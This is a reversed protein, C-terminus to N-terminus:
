AHETTNPNHLHRGPGVHRGRACRERVPAGVHDLHFTHLEAIGTAGQHDPSEGALGRPDVGVEHQFETVAALAADRDVELGLQTALEEAPQKGAGVDQQGVPQRASELSGTERDLVDAGEVGVDDDRATRTKAHASGVAILATEVARGVGCAAAHGVRQRREARIEGCHLARCETVQLGPGRQRTTHARRQEM